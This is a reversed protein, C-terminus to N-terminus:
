QSNWDNTEYAYTFYRKLYPATFNLIHSTVIIATNSGYKGYKISWLEFHIESIHIFCKSVKLSALHKHTDWIKSGDGKTLKNCSWLILSFSFIAWIPHKACRSELNLIRHSFLFHPYISTQSEFFSFVYVGEVTESLKM